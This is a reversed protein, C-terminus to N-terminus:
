SILESIPFRLLEPFLESEVTDPDGHDLLRELLLICNSTTAHYAATQPPVALGAEM